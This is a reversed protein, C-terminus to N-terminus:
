RGFLTARHLKSKQSHWADHQYKLLAQPLAHERQTARAERLHLVVNALNEIRRVRHLVYSYGTAGSEVTQVRLESDRCAALTGLVSYQYEFVQDYFSEYVLNGLRLVTHIGTGSLRVSVSVSVVSKRHAIVKEEEYVDYMM